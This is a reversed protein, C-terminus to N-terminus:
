GKPGVKPEYSSATRAKITDDIQAMNYTYIIGYQSGRMWMWVCVCVCVCVGISGIYM